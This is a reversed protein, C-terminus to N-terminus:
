QDRSNKHANPNAQKPLTPNDTMTQENRAIAANAWMVVEELKTLALSLERSQPCLVELLLALEKGEKRIQEYRPLQDPVPAHYTFNNTIRDFTEKSMVYAHADMQNEKKIHQNSLLIIGYKMM